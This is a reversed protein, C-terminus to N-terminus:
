KDTKANLYDKIYSKLTSLNDVYTLGDLKKDRMMKRIVNIAQDCHRKEPHEIPEYAHQWHGTDSAPVNADFLSLHNHVEVVIVGPMWYAIDNLYPKFRYVINGNM